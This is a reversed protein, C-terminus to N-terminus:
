LAELVCMWFSIKLSGKVTSNHSDQRGVQFKVESYLNKIDKLANNLSNEFPDLSEKSAHDDTHNGFHIAMTLDKAEWYRSNSFVFQYIGQQYADFVFLGENKGQITNFIRNSPDIIWFDILKNRVLDLITRAESKPRFKQSTSM